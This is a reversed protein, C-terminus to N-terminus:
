FQFRASFQLQRERFFFSNNLGTSGPQLFDETAVLRLNNPDSSDLNYLEDNVGTVNVHNFLNFAEAFLEFSTKETIHFRRSVRLDATWQSPARFQNRTVFPVRGGGGSSGSLNVDAQAEVRLRWDGGGSYVFEAHRHGGAPAQVVVWSPSPLDLAYGGGADTYTRTQASAAVSSLLLALISAPLIFSARMAANGKLLRLRGARLRARVDPGLIFSIRRSRV